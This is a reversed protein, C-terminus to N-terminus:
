PLQQGSAPQGQSGRGPEVLHEAPAALELITTESNLWSWHCDFRAPRDCSKQIPLVPSTNRRSPSPHEGGRPGRQPDHVLVLAPAEIVAVFSEITTQRHETEGDTHHKLQEGTM